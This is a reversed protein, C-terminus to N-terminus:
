KEFDALAPQVHDNPIQVTGEPENNANINTIQLTDSVAQPPENNDHEAPAEANVAARAEERERKRQQVRAQIDLLVDSVWKKRETNFYHICYPKDGQMGNCEFMMAIDKGVHLFTADTFLPRMQVEIADSDIFPKISCVTTM